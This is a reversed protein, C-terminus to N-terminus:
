KYLCFEETLEEITNSKWMKVALGAVAKTDEIATKKIIAQM